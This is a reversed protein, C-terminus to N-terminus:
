LVALKQHNLSVRQLTNLNIMRWASKDMDFVPLLGYAVPDYRMGRGNVGKHVGLRATMKRLSGDKKIFEVFFIRGATSYLREIAKRRDIRKM